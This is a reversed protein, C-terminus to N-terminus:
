WRCEVRTVLGDFTITDEVDVYNDAQVADIFEGMTVTNMWHSYMYGAAFRWHDSPSTWGFGLEYELQPVIRDDRWNAQALLVETTSNFMTYRSSFRGTMVAGTLRGYVSFGGDLRREGDVGAKLGGGDFDITSLTDITGGQGGSFNGSQGFFQELNGYQVGLLYNGTFCPGSAFASRYLIDTTQYDIEYNGDVPGASATIAANPHHVLSGVAGNGGPIDPPEVINFGDTELFTYNFEIGSCPGCAVVMGVRVGSDYQTDITGIDGFPVTGAGGLGDQQQAHALDGGSAQMYLWDVRWVCRPQCDMECQNCADAYCGNPGYGGCCGGSCGSDGCGCCANGGYGGYCGDDCYGGCADGCGCAGNCDGGNCNGNLYSDYGIENRGYQPPAPTPGDYIVNADPAASPM